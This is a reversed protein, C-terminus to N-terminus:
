MTAANATPRTIQRAVREARLRDGLGYVVSGLPERDRLCVDGHISATINERDHRLLPSNRIVRTPASLVARMRAVMAPQPATTDAIKAHMFTSPRTSARARASVGTPAAIPPNKPPENDAEEEVEDCRVHSSEGQADALDLDRWARGLGGSRGGLAELPGLCARRRLRARAAPGLDAGIAREARLAIV